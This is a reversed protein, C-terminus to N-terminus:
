TREGTHYRGIWTGIKMTSEFLQELRAEVEELTWESKGAFALEAVAEGVAGGRELAAGVTLRRHQELLERAQDYASKPQPPRLQSM